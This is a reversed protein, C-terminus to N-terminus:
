GATEILSSDTVTELSDDTSKIPLDINFTTGIGSEVDFTISGEHKKTIVTFAIALGQGTGKGVEKTTFFPEFVKMRAAEPIGGGNDQISVLVREGITKTEIKIVGKVMQKAKIRDGIAHAANVIINLFAQNLEGPIAEIKPLTEELNMEIEAVYKWENSAVTVTSQLIHNLCVQTKQDDGPHSFEKMAAVIKTVSGVGDISDQLAFPIQELLAKVKKPKLTLEITKRKKCLTEDSVDPDVLLHLCDLVSELKTLTKSVFRVNDGIYQMPTNIEHAVGAALQGVSELRLAQDLQIELSRNKTVDTMLILYGHRSDGDGIPCATVDVTRSEGSKGEFRSELQQQGSVACAKIASELESIEEWAIPLSSLKSGVALEVNIDFLEEASGNWRTVVLEQDVGIIASTISSVILRDFDNSTQMKNEMTLFFPDHNCSPSWSAVSTDLNSNRTTTSTVLGKSDSSPSTAEDVVVLELLRIKADCWREM